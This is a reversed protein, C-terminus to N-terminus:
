DSCQVKKTRITDALTDIGYMRALAVLDDAGASAAGGSVLKSGVVDVRLADNNAAPLSSRVTCVPSLDM